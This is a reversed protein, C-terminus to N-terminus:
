GLIILKVLLWIWYYGVEDMGFGYYEVILWSVMVGCKCGMCLGMGCCIFM